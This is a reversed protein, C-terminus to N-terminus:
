RRKKNNRINNKRILADSRMDKFDQLFQKQLKDWRDHLPNIRQTTTGDHKYETIIDEYDPEQMAESMRDILIKTKALQEIEMDQGIYLQESELETQIQKRIDELHRAYQQRRQEVDQSTASRTVNRIFTASQIDGKMANNLISLAIAAKPTLPKGENDTATRGDKTNVVMSLKQIILDELTLDEDPAIDPSPQQLKPVASPPPPPPIRHGDTIKHNGNHIIDETQKQKKM